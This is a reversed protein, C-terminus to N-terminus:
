YEGLVMTLVNHMLQAVEQRAMPQWPDGYKKYEDGMHTMDKYFCWHLVDFDDDLVSNSYALLAWSAHVGLQALSEDYLDHSSAGAPELKGPRFADVARMTMTIVQARTIDEYPKFATPTKGTTIGGKWAARIYGNPYPQGTEPDLDTFPCVSDMDPAIDLLLCIMKAFQQRTIGREPRFTGDEFGNIIGRKSLDQIAGAYKHTVPVDTFTPTQGPTTTTTTTPLTTTSTSPVTTTTTSGSGSGEVTLRYPFNNNGALVWVYYTGSSAPTYDMTGIQNPKSESDWNVAQHVDYDPQVAFTYRGRVSQSGPTLLRLYASGFSGGTPVLELHLPRGATLDVAYVDDRDARSSVVGDLTGAGVRTGPIDGADPATMAPRSTRTVTLQYNLSGEKWEVWLYYTGSKAPVYDFDAWFRLFSGGSLSYAIETYDDPASLSTAGPVLLNFTGKTGSTSGPDCTVHVEQGEILNVAYVDNTDGSTTSGSVTAGLALPVGPIDDDTAALAPFALSLLVVGLVVLGCMAPRRMVGVGKISGQETAASMARRREDAATTGSTNM